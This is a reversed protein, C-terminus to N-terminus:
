KNMGEIVDLIGYKYIESLGEIQYENLESYPDEQSFLTGKNHSIVKGNVVFIVLPAYIRSNGEEVITFKEGLANMLENYEATIDEVDLYYITELETSSAVNCLVEIASRCYLCTSYGFYVVADEKNNFIKLVENVDSYKIINNSPLIVEPYLKGDESETNNLKEYEEKVKEGDPNQTVGILEDKDNLRNIGIILLIIVLVIGLILIIKKKNNNVINFINNKM